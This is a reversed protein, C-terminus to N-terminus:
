AYRRGADIEARSYNVGAHGVTQAQAAGATLAFFAAAAATAFLQNRM